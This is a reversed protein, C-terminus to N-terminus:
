AAGLLTLARDLAADAESLDDDDETYEQAKVIEACAEDIADMSKKHAALEEELEAIRDDRSKLAALLTDLDKRYFPAWDVKTASEPVPPVFALGQPRASHFLPKLRDRLTELGAIDINTV